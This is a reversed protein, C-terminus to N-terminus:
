EWEAEMGIARCFGGKDLDCIAKTKGFGNTSTRGWKIQGQSYPVYNVIEEKKFVKLWKAKPFGSEETKEGEEYAADWNEM